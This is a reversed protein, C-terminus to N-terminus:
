NVLTCDKLIPTKLTDGDGICLVVIHQGKTLSALKDREKSIFKARPSYFSNTADFTVYADNSIDTSINTVDGEMLIWKGKFQQDASVTNREYADTIEQAAFLTMSTPDPRSVQSSSSSGVQDIQDSNGSFFFPVVYFVVFLLIGCKVLIKIYTFFRGSFTEEEDYTTSNVRHNTHHEAENRLPMGCHPCAAAKDSIQNGCESCNILAM